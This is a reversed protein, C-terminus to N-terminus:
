EAKELRIQLQQLREFFDPFSKTVAEAGCVTGGYRSCLVALSMVVRHDNHGDLPETPAHLPAPFVQVSDEELRIEAGFKRLEEAMVIARDSEKMKLRKTHTFTAGHLAAALTMLIPALDPCDEVSLTCNGECLADVYPQWVRDGQLTEPNRGLLTIEGGLANLAGFFAANSEDGEVTCNRPLYRQNGSVGFSREGERDVRVGFTELAQLTLSLYSASELPTTIELRSEGKLLPLAFLLGTLFQSSVDGAVSFTGWTLTGCVTVSDSSRAFSIGQEQFLKEYVCLPREMLRSSGTLTVPAGSLCLPLLFRLTSGSERCPLTGTGRPFGGVGRVTAVDGNLSIEAGLQRLCDCTAAIDQSLALNRIESTGEALAACILFRHAMSKSPPVSLTGKPLSPHILINM